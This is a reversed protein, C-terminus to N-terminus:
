FIQEIVILCLWCLMCMCSIQLQRADGLSSRESCSRDVFLCLSMLIDTISYCDYLLDTTTTTQLILIMLRIMCIWVLDIFKDTVTWDFGVRQICRFLFVM